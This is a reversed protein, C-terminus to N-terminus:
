APSEQGTCEDFAQNNMANLRWGLGEIAIAGRYKRAPHLDFLTWCRGEPTTLLEPAADPLLSVRFSDLPLALGTGIAKVYAEKRTWGSFFAAARQAKPLGMLDACEETSFFRSALAEPDALGREHEIDVGIRADGCFAFIAYDESHALNFQLQSARAVAPKGNAGYEFEVEGPPLSLYQGVLIRLMGRAGVFRERDRAFRFRGAREREDGSLQAAFEALRAASVPLRLRWLQVQRSARLSALTAAEGSVCEADIMVASAM